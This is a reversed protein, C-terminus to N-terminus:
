VKAHKRKPNIFSQIYENNYWEIWKVIVEFILTNMITHDSSSIGIKNDHHPHKIYISANEEGIEGIQFHFGMRRIKMLVDMQWDYSTNFRMEGLCYNGDIVKSNRIKYSEESMCEYGMFRCIMKNKEATTM